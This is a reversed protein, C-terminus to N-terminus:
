SHRFFNNFIFLIITGDDMDKSAKLLELYPNERDKREVELYKLFGKGKGVSIFRAM